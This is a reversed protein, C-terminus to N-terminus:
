DRGATSPKRCHFFVHFGLDVKSGIIANPADESAVAERLVDNLASIFESNAHRCKEDCGRKIQSKALVDALEKQAAATTAQPKGDDPIAYRGSTALARMQGVQDHSIVEVKTTCLAKYLMHLFDRQMSTLGNVRHHKEHGPSDPRSLQLGEDYWHLKWNSWFETAELPNSRDVRKKRNTRGTARHGGAAGEGAVGAEMRLRLEEVKALAARGLKEQAADDEPNSQGFVLVDKVDVGMGLGMRGGIECLERMRFKEHFLEDFFADREVISGVGLVSLWRKELRIDLYGSLFGKISKCAELEKVGDSGGGSEGLETLLADSVGGRGLWEGVNVLSGVRDASRLSDIAAREVRRRERAELAVFLPDKRNTSPLAVRQRSRKAVLAEIEEKSRSRKEGTGAAEAHKKGDGAGGRRAKRDRPMIAEKCNVVVAAGCGPCRKLKGAYGRPAAVNLGCWPCALKIRDM